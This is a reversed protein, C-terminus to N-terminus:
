IQMAQKKLNIPMKEIAYLLATRSMKNKYKMIYNFVELQYNNSAEKLMWGYGKQVLDDQDLFLKDAIIFNNKFFKKNKRTPYIMIVASGRRQWRNKSKTWKIIELLYEPYLYLWYSFAHTCFIDCKNWNNVYKKLWSSFIKWDSKIYQKKLKYAWDFAIIAEENFDTALLEECLKFVETKIKEKPFYKQSIQRVIPTKVGYSKIEKKFWKQYNQKYVLDVNQKLEQRLNVLLKNMNGSLSKM